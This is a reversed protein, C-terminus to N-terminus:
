KQPASIVKSLNENGFKAPNLPHGEVVIKQAPNLVIAHPTGYLKLQKYLTKNTDTAYYLKPADAKKSFKRVDAFNEDSLMIVCINPFDKQIKDMTKLAKRSEPCWTNFFCIVTFKDKMAPKLSVWQPIKVDAIRTQESVTDTYMKEYPASSFLSCGSLGLLVFIGFLIHLTKM